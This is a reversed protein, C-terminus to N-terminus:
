RTLPIVAGQQRLSLEAAELLRVVAIGSRAGTLPPKGERVCEVFHAAERALAETRDLHPILVDGSRYVPNFATVDTAENDVGRDYIRIKESPEVDDYVAMRKCGGLLVLRMKVPSLWSVHIHAHFNGEYQLHLHAIEDHEAAVHRYGIAQVSLPPRDLLYALISLDHPALDWLVSTDKQLLGLNIRMSDFYTLKGLTGDDIIEKLKRVAGTYVYTHDVMLVLRQREALSQLEEAERVSHCLPKEVLVHKGAELAAKALSFHSSVPTAIAVADVAPDAILASAQDVTRIMPYNQRVKKLNEAKLDAVATVTCGERGFFNRVLNPGWYGYGIVGIRLPSATVRHSFLANLTSKCHFGTADSARGTGNEERLLPM